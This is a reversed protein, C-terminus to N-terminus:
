EGCPCYSTAIPHVTDLAPKGSLFCVCVFVQVCGCGRLCASGCGCVWVKVRVRACVREHRVKCDKGINEELLDIGLFLDFWGLGMTTMGLVWHVSFWVLRLASGKSPRFIALAPQTCTLVFVAIGLRSHVSDMIAEFQACALVFSAIVLVLALM